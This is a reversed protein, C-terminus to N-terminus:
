EDCWEPKWGNSGSKVGHDGVEGGGIGDNDGVWNEAVEGGSWYVTSLMRVLGAMSSAIEVNKVEVEASGGGVVVEMVAWGAVKDGNWGIKEGVGAGADTARAEDDVEECGDRMVSKELLAGDSAAYSSQSDSM